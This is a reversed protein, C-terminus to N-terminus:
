SSGKWLKTGPMWVPCSVVGKIGAEPFRIDKRAEMPVQACTCMRM